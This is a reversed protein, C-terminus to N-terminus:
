RSAVLAEVSRALDLKLTRIRSMSGSASGKGGQVDAASDRQAARLLETRCLVALAMSYNTEVNGSTVRSCLAAMWDQEERSRALELALACLLSVGIPSGLRADRWMSDSGRREKLFVCARCIATKIAADKLGRATPEGCVRSGIRAPLVIFAAVLLPAALWFM